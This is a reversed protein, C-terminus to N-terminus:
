ICDLQIQKFLSSNRPKIAVFITSNQGVNIATTEYSMSNYGGVDPPSVAGNPALSANAIGLEHIDSYAYYVDHILSNEEKNRNWSVYIRNNAPDFFGAISYVQSENETRTEEYIAFRDVKYTNPITEDYVRYGFDIYFRTMADFYRLGEETPDAVEGIEVGGPTGDRKYNPHMDVIFKMWRGNTGRTRFHHYYHNAGTENVSVPATTARHYTGVALSQIGGNPNPYHNDPVVMYFSMRNYKGNEWTDLTQLLDTIIEKMYYWGALEESRPGFQLYLAGGPDVTVELHNGSEYSGTQSISTTGTEVIESGGNIGNPYQGWLDRNYPQIYLPNLQYIGNDFNEFVVEGQGQNLVPSDGNPYEGLLRDGRNRNRYLTTNFAM